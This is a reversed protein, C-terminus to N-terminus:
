KLKLTKHLQIQLRIPLKTELIWHALIQPSLIKYVPSFFIQTYYNIKFKEIIRLAWEFDSRNKIVFKVADKKNLFKLNEYLNFRDMQSSPTKIDMVKIVDKPTNKLSISGNTELVIIAKKLLLEEMLAYINKQILPEGGTLTIYPIQPYNKKWLNIIEPINMSKFTGYKAYLTDCWSCNLNCGFFRIFLTPYGMLPGEGQISYFIESIKLTKL